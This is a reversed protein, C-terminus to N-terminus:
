QLSPTFTSLLRLNGQYSLQPLRTQKFLAKRHWITKERTQDKAFLERNLNDIKDPRVQQTSGISIM